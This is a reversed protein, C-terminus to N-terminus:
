PEPNQTSQLNKRASSWNNEYDLPLFRDSKYFAKRMNDSFSYSYFCSKLKEQLEPALNYVYSFASTPQAESEYIIRFRSIDMMKRNSMRELVESAIVAADYDGSQIGVISRDHKGSFLPQYDQNPILGKKPFDKMAALHGSNSTNSVHAIRRDKLDSLKYYPSDARVIVIMKTNILGNKNGRGAFPIAGARNVAAITTGAAFGSVHLHGRRMAEIEAESSQLPYYLVRRQLCSELYQYLDQLEEDYTGTEELPSIAIILTSPNIQQSPDKPTDAVLNYDDDCLPVELDGRHRCEDAIAFANGLASILFFVMGIITYTRRMVDEDKTSILM